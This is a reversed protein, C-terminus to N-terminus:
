VVGYTHGAERSGIRSADISKLGLELLLPPLEHRGAPHEEVTCLFMM